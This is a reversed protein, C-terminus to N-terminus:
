LPFTLLFSYGDENWQRVWVTAHLKTAMEKALLINFDLSFSPERRWHGKIYFSFDDKGRNEVGVNIETDASALCACTLVNSLIAKYFETDANIEIDENWRITWTIKKEKCVSSLVGIVEYLTESTKIRSTKLPKNHIRQLAWSSAYSRIANEDEQEEIALQLIQFLADDFLSLPISVSLDRLLGVVLPERSCRMYTLLTQIKDSAVENKKNNDSQSKRTELLHLQNAVSNIIREPIFPKTIFDNAGIALAEKIDSDSNLASLIIVPITRTQPNERLLKTMEFGNMAPMMIDTLIIDPASQAIEELAAVGNSASRINFKLKSLMSKVLLVNLPIDDVILVSYRSYDIGHNNKEEM